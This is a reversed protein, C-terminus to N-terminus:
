APRRSALWGMGGGLTLGGVGTHSVNGADAPVCEAAPHAPQGPLCAQGAVVHTVVEFSVVNDCALGAQRAQSLTTDNSTTVASSVVNDCALCAPRAQSLTTDDSTTVASSVVNDCALGAQRAQSLTTDDATVVEFSVVNDCALCAPRAQSLTM